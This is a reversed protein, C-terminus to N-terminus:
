ATQKKETKDEKAAQELVGVMYGAIFSKKPDSSIVFKEAVRQLTEKKPKTM